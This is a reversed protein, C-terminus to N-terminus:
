DIKDFATEYDITLIIGSINEKEIDDIIDIVNKWKRWYKRWYIGWEFFGTQDTHFLNQLKIKLRAEITISLINNDTTLM